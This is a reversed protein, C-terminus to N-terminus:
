TRVAGLYVGVLVVVSGVLFVASITEGAIASAVAFTVLPSLLSSYSAASATWRYIVWVLLVFATISSTVLWSLAGWTQALTPMRFQERVLLAAAFLILAGVAMGVANMAVPHGRPFRKVVVTSVAAMVAGAFLAALAFISFNAALQENFVLAVGLLAVLAGLLVRPKFKELGTAAAILFTMVPVTAFLIAATPSHVTLLGWYVFAFGAGFATAGLLM